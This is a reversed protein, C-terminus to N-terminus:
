EIVEKTTTTITFKVDAETWEASDWEDRSFLLCSFHGDKLARAVSGRECYGKLRVYMKMRGGGEHYVPDCM